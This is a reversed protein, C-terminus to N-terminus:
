FILFVSSYSKVALLRIYLSFFLERALVHQLRQTLIATASSSLYLYVLFIWFTPSILRVFLHTFAAPRHRETFKAALPSVQQAGSRHHCLQLSSIFPSSSFINCFYICLNRAPEQLLFLQLPSFHQTPWPFNLSSSAFAILSLELASNFQLCPKYYM